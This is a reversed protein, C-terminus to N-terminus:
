TLDDDGVGIPLTETSQEFPELAGPVAIAADDVIKL